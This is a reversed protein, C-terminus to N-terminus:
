LSESCPVFAGLLLFCRWAKGVCRCILLHSNDCNSLCFVLRLRSSFIICEFVVPLGILVVLSCTSAILSQGSFGSFFGSMPHLIVVQTGCWLGEGGGVHVVSRCWFTKLLFFLFYKFILIIFFWFFFFFFSFFPDCYWHSVIVALM